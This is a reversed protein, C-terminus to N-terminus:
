VPHHVPAPVTTSSGELEGYDPLRSTALESLEIEGRAETPTAARSSGALTGEDSGVSNVRVNLPKEGTEKVYAPPAHGFEDIDLRIGDGDRTVTRGSLRRDSMNRRGSQRTRDNGRPWTGNSRSRTHLVPANLASLDQQLTRRSNQIHRKAQKRRHRATSFLVILVLVVVVGLVVFGWDRTDLGTDPDTDQSDDGGSEDTTPTGSGPDPNQPVPSATALFIPLFPFVTIPATLWNSM